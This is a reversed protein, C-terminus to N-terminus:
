GGMAEASRRAAETAMKRWEAHLQTTYAITEKTMRAAEDVATRAHSAAETELKGVQDWFSAMRAAQEDFVGKWFASVPHSDTTTKEHKENAM